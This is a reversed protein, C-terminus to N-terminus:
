KVGTKKRKIQKKDAKKLVGYAQKDAHCRSNGGEPRVETNEEGQKKRRM